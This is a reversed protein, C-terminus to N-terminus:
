KLRNEIFEKVEQKAKLMEVEDSTKGEARKIFSDFLHSMYIPSTDSTYSVANHCSFCNALTNVNVDKLSSKFTQTYTEMTVNACNLSGRAVSGPTGSGVSYKLKVLLEAQQKSSLGDTDVWISGNYFYNAWVDKLNKKVCNNINVINEFNVPEEQSTKMFGGTSDRPVGFKFIDYVKYLTSAQKKITDWYIGNIGTTSGKAFLLKDSSSSAKDEKWNYNPALDYNEFTAWIFEPHNEVVGVVHMGLLAVEKNTFNGKGDDVAGVTTFYNARKNVPIADISTWSVKLELSGVPFSSLNDKVLTGNLISDKFKEAANKLTPSVHISYFVTEEKNHANNYAPNTRLIGSSGAQATDELVVSAGPVPTVSGLHSDVQYMKKPNLFLPLTDGVYLPVEKGDLKVLLKEIQYEPKTVWLFKQWSWQHFIANTTSITDFPSGIGEEPAPTQSHPFWNSECLSEIELKNYAVETKAKIQEKEKKKCSNLFVLSLILMTGLALKFSLKM